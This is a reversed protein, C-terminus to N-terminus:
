TESPMLIYLKGAWVEVYDPDIESHGAATLIEVRLARRVGQARWKRPRYWMRLVGILLLPSLMCGVIVLDASIKGPVWSISFTSQVWESWSILVDSYPFGSLWNFGSTTMATMFGVIVWISGIAFMAGIKLPRDECLDEERGYKEDASRWREADEPKVRIVTSIKRCLVEEDDRVETWTKAM